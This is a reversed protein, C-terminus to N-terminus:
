KMAQVIAFVETTIQESKLDQDIQGFIADLRNGKLFREYRSFAEDTMWGLKRFQPLKELLYKVREQSLLTKLNDM